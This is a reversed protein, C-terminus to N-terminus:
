SIKKILSHLQRRVVYTSFDSYKSICHVAFIRLMILAINFEFWVIAASESGIRITQELDSPLALIFRCVFDERVIVIQFHM